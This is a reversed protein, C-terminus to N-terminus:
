LYFCHHCDAAPASLLLLCTSTILARMIQNVVSLFLWYPPLGWMSDSLPQLKGSKRLCKTVRLTRGSWAKLQNCKRRDKTSEYKCHIDPHLKEHWFRRQAIKRRYLEIVVQWMPLISNQKFLAISGYLFCLASEVLNARSCGSQNKVPQIHVTVTRLNFFSYLIFYLVASSKEERTELLDSNLLNKKSEM